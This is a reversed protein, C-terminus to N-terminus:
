KGSAVIRGLRYVDHGLDYDTIEYTVWQEGASFRVLGEGSAVFRPDVNALFEATCWSGSRTSIFDNM